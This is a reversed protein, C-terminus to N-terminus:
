VADCYLVIIDPMYVFSFKKGKGM